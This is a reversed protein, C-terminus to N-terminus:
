TTKGTLLGAGDYSWLAVLVAGQHAEISRDFRGNKNLFHFKGLVVM